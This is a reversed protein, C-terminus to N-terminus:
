RVISQVNENLILQLDPTLFNPLINDNLHVKKEKEIRSEHRMLMIFTKHTLTYTHTNFNNKMDLKFNQMM